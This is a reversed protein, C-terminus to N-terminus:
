LIKFFIKEIKEFIYKINKMRKENIILLIEYYICM